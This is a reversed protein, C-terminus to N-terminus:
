LSDLAVVWMGRIEGTGYGRAEDEPYLAKIQKYFEPSLEENLKGHCQLCMPNTLIPLYGFDGNEASVIRPKLEEKNALAQQYAALIKLEAETARNAPNRAKDSVRRIQHALHASMSDTLPLAKLNCFALAHEKGGEKLAGMLNKGLVKKTSLALRKVEAEASTSGQKRGEGHGKAHKPHEQEVAYLYHGIQSLKEEDLNLAPMLGFKDLAGRMLVKEEEPHQVFDTLAAVFDAEEPYVKLYHKRIAFFPPALRSDHDATPSHCSECNLALIERSGEWSEETIEQKSDSDSGTGQQCAILLLGVGFASLVLRRM